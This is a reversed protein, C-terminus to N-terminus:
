KSEHTEHYSYILKIFSRMDLEDIDIGKEGPYPCLVGRETAMYTRIDATYRRIEEYTLTRTTEISFYEKFARHLADCAERQRTGFLKESCFPILIGRLYRMTSIRKDM